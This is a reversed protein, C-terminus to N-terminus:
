GVVVTGHMFPHVLCIFGYTGAKAFTVKASSPQPSHPDGDLVGTNLFGNGHATGDYPPLAPPPDSPFAIQPNFVLTPPGARSPVPMVFAKAVAQLYAPPGFSFTHIEQRSKVQMTLSGGVPVHITRPFFRLQVV